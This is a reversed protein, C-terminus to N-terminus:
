GVARCTDRYLQVDAPWAQYVQERLSLFQSKPVSYVARNHVTYGVGLDARIMNAWRPMPILELLPRHQWDPGLFNRYCRSQSMVHLDGGWYDLQPVAHKLWQSAFEVPDDITKPDPFWRELWARDFGEALRGWNNKRYFGNLVTMNFQSLFRAFPERVCGKIHIDPRTKVGLMQRPFQAKMSSFGTKPPCFYGVSLQPFWFWGAAYGPNDIVTQLTM